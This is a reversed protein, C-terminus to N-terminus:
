GLKLLHVFWMRGGTLMTEFTGGRGVGADLVFSTFDKDGGRGAGVRGRLIVQKQCKPPWRARSWRSPHATLPDGGDTPSIENEGGERDKGGDKTSSHSNYLGAM